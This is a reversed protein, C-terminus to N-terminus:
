DTLISDAFRSGYYCSRTYLKRRGTRHVTVRPYNGKRRVTYSIVLKDGPAIDAGSGNAGDIKTIALPLRVFGQEKEVYADMIKDTSAKTFVASGIAMPNASLTFVHATPVPNTDEEANLTHGCQKIGLKPVVMNVASNPMEKQWRSCFLNFGSMVLGAAMYSYAQRQQTLYTHWRAIANSLSDRVETQKTTQPNSPIVYARRYQRGKWTAFVGAKGAQGSYRDGFINTIKVM